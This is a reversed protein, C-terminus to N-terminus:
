ICRTRLNTFGRLDKYYHDLNTMDLKAFYRLDKDYQAHALYRM